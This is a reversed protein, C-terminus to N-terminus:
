KLGKFWEDWTKGQQVWPPKVAQKAREEQEALMKRTREKEKEAEQQPNPQIMEPLSPAFREGKRIWDRINANVRGSDTQMFEEVWLEATEQTVKWSPYSLALRKFAKRAEELELHTVM